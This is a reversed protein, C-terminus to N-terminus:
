EAGCVSIVRASTAFQQYWGNAGNGKLQFQSGNDHGSLYTGFLQNKFICSVGDPGLQAIWVVGSGGSCPHIVVDTGNNAGAVCKSSNFELLYSNGSVNQVNITRGSGEKVPDYLNLTPAGICYAGHSECVLAPGSASAPSAALLLGSVAIAAAGVSIRVVKRVLINRLVSVLKVFPRRDCEM